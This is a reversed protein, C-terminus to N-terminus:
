RWDSPPPPCFTFCFLSVLDRGTHIIVLNSRCRTKYKPPIGCKYRSKQLVEALLESTGSRPEVAISYVFFLSCSRFSDELELVGQIMMQMATKGPSKKLMFWYFDTSIQSSCKCNSQSSQVVEQKKCQTFIM